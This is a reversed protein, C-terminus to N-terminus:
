GLFISMGVVLPVSVRQFQPTGPSNFLVLAGVIFSAVGATTLAGHTPAKIDLIFLAFAIILFIFGFWNVTLVGMGYVALTLCVAGIFGAFWGGPSSIEILVGQVGIALLLFAINPDTLTLLLQEIFSINLDQTRVNETDLARRGDDMQVIFGNLSQLLDETDDSIFDILNVALAEKATAAKADDIMAEALETAQTGRGEVLSRTKAKLIEKVKTELTSEIDAGSSEIPSAAGIATGPAMASAHGAMTILAGASGAIADKPSIYVVVPVASARIVEIIELMTAVSGGPTNLQMIVVEANRQEATEIGRKIYELMPPMIPGDVTMVIALPENTQAHVSSFFALVTLALLFIRIQRM